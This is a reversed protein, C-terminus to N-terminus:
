GDIEMVRIVDAYWNWRQATDLARRLLQYRKADAPNDVIRGRPGVAEIIDGVYGHEMDLQVLVIIFRKPAKM